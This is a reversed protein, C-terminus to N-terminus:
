DIRTMREAEVRIPRVHCNGARPRQEYAGGYALWVAGLPGGHTVVLVREGDDAAAIELLV